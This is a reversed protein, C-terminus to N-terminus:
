IMDGPKKGMARKRSLRIKGDRDINLVAVNVEDGEQLIDTVQEVRKDSLESIHCLGETGPFLEVFAGFDLVRRVLGKYVRNIEAERTLEEIIKVATEVSEKGVGAVQVTGDDTVEVKAGSRAVIDRIVRGGPGIVDRIKDPNIRFRHIRPANPSIEDREKPLAKAMESLIHLRGLRAQELAKTLIEESLGDVKIDMQIATVGNETGCVKFDMDGLHDEDGLIDSLVAVRDGEKIMGMAIGAVPAKLKIGADRMALTAGCVTAMSSSGNSEFIESVIRITYPFSEDEQPTMQSVAREALAGHGIERRSTARLMRAEGVSFPPFNYHLMFKRFSEGTLGDIKQEDEGTGLTVSILGQTEGRTFMASGHARPLLGVECCIPRIEDYARDDIRKKTDLVDNRMQEKKLDDYYSGVAGMKSEAEDGLALAMAAEVQEKCQDLRTYREIKNRTALAEKLGYESSYKKVQEFLSHEISPVQFIVKEKGLEKRMDECAGIVKLGEKQAFFLAEVLDQEALEKAGGEVMVIADKHSAVIIDLDSQALENITPNAVLKGNIRGVKVGSIPGSKLSFPLSSLHLAMSAANLALVDTDHVGDHSVITAIVQVEEFFGDPFLPRISRDIIRANLIEADRPKTERKFFGGPIKGAAYTKELYECTLPFFTAGERAKGSCVTVLVISDGFRAWVAANAQKAIRGSEFIFPQSANKAENRHFKNSNHMLQAESV